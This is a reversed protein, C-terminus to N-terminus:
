KSLLEVILAENTPVSIEDRAPAGVVRAAPPEESVALWSVPPRGRSRELGERVLKLSAEDKAPAVTMGERVLLSPITARRGDVLIHGHGVMVRAQRRSAAFGARHVVNDLRRELIVLLNLGTNGRTREALAFYRRFQREQVGYFRKVKQKERLQSGYDSVKPRRWRREGPPQDRRSVACKPTDCREGKLFLKVGERRCLRCVPGVYRGM